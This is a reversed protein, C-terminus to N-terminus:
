APVAGRGGSCGGQRPKVVGQRPRERGNPSAWFPGFDMQVHYKAFCGGHSNQFLFPGNEVYSNIERGAM